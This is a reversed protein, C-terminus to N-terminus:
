EAYLGKGRSLYATQSSFASGTSAEMVIDEMRLLLDEQIVLFTNQDRCSLYAFIEVDKSYAGFSVFRVRAPAPTVKPNGM